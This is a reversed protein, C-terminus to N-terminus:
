VGHAPAAEAEDAVADDKPELKPQGFDWYYGWSPAFRQFKEAEKLGEKLYYLMNLQARWLWCKHAAKM